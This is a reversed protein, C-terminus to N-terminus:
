IFSIDPNRIQSEMSEGKMMGHVYCEGVLEFFGDEVERIIHPVLGGLFIVVLNGKQLYDPGLGLYYNDTVFPRRGCAASIMTLYRKGAEM